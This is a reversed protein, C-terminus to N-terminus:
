QEKSDIFVKGPTLDSHNKTGYILKAQEQCEYIFLSMGYIQISM